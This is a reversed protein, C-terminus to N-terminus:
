SSLRQIAEVLIKNDPDKKRAEAWIRRAEDREGKVWLVEGLHAAIEADATIAFAKRLLRAAEDLNGLRYNVWGLSDIIAAEGPKLAIARDILLKAEVFRTTRDALTYGLANLADANDPEISMIRRLDVEGGAIDGGDISLMARAYLLRPDDPLQELGRAYVALADASRTKRTLLSAELLYLDGLAAPDSSVSQRLITIRSRVAAGDGIEDNLVVMRMGADLWREDTESIQLYWRLADEPREITEAVQGLLFLRKGTREESSAQIERYLAGLMATDEARAAYAARAGYTVDSQAGVGLVRAAARNDGSDGLLAAYATRMRLNAPDSRLALEYQRRAKTKDGRDLALKASWAYAEASKFKAVASEALREALAANDLRTALQSMAIWYTDVGGLREPTALRKLLDAASAKDPAAALVQVVARWPNEVDRASLQQLQEYARELEGNALALSATAQAVGTADPTLERWRSLSSQALAADKVALALRTAQEAIAPDISLHAAQAYRQAALPLDSQQLALEAGILLLPVDQDADVAQVSQSIITSAQLRPPASACAGLLCTLAVILWVHSRRPVCCCFVILLRNSM